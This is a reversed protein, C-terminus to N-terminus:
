LQERKQLRLDEIQDPFDNSLRHSNEFYENWSRPKPTIIIQNGEKRILVEDTDLEFGRPFRVSQNNKNYFLKATREQIPQTPM